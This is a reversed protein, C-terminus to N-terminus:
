RSYYSQVFNYEVVERWDERTGSFKEKETREDRGGYNDLEVRLEGCGDCFTEGVFGSCCTCGLLTYGGKWQNPAISKYYECKDNFCYYSM